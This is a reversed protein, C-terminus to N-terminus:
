VSKLFKKVMLICDINDGLATHKNSFLFNFVPSTSLCPNKLNVISINTQLHNRHNSNYYYNNTAAM